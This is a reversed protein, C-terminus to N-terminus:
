RLSFTVMNNVRQVLDRRKEKLSVIFGVDGLNEVWSRDIDADPLEM